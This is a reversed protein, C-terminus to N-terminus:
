RPVLIPSPDPEAELGVRWIMRGLWRNLTNERRLFALPPRRRVGLDQLTGIIEGNEPDIMLGVHTPKVSVYARLGAGHVARAAELYTEVVRRAEAEEEVAEGLLDIIGEFGEAQRNFRGIEAVSTSSRRGVGARGGSQRPVM